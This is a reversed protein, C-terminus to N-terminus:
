QIFVGIFCWCFLIDLRHCYIPGSGPESRVIEPHMPCVYETKAVPPTATVPELAMGCKPCFGPGSQRVEPHMPCTYQGSTVTPGIPKQPTQQAQAEQKAAVYRDLNARFKEACQTSCFYYTKGDHAESAAAQEPKVSMGCIPDKVTEGVTPPLSTDKSHLESPRNM